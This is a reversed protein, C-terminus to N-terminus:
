TGLFRYFNSLGRFNVGVFKFSEVTIIFYHFYMSSILFFKEELVVTCIGVLSPVFCEQTFPIWTQEFSSGNWEWLSLSPNKRRKVLTIIYGYTNISKFKKRLNTIDGMPRKYIFHISSFDVFRNILFVGKWKYSFLGQSFFHSYCCM